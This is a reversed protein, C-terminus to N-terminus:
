EEELVGDPYAQIAIREIRQAIRFRENHQESVIGRIVTAGAVEVLIWRARHRIVAGDVIPIVGREEGGVVAISGMLALFVVFFFRLGPLPPLRAPAPRLGTGPDREANSAKRTVGDPFHRIMVAAFDCPM